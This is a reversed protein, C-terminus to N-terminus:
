TSDPEYATIQVIGAAALLLLPVAPAAPRLDHLVLGAAIAGCVLAVLQRASVTIQDRAGAAAAHIAGTLMGTFYTTTQHIRLAWISQGGLAVALVALLILAVGHGPRGAEALWTVLVASILTFEAALLRVASRDGHRLFWAWIIEGAVCGAIAVVAPEILLVRGSALGFGATVLNGTINGAFAHGLGFFAVTDAAGACAALLAGIAARPSVAATRV